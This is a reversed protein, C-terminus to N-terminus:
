CVAPIAIAAAVDRIRRLYARGDFPMDSMDRKLRPHVRWLACWRRHGRCRRPRWVGELGGRSQARVGHLSRNAAETGSWSGTSMPWTLTREEPAVSPRRSSRCDSLKGRKKESPPRREWDRRVGSGEVGVPQVDRGKLVTHCLHLAYRDFPIHLGCFIERAHSIQRM